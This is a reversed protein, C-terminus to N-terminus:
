DQTPERGLLRRVVAKSRRLRGPQHKDKFKKIQVKLKAEVIDVAAYMNITAERAEANPGPIELKAECIYENGERGSRDHELIVLGAVDHVSRPLYRDLGGIKREVYETIGETQEFDKNTIHLKIM